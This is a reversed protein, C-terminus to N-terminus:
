GLMVDLMVAEEETPRRLKMLRSPIWKVDKEWPRCWVVYAHTGPLEMGMKIVSGVILTGPPIMFSDDVIWPPPSPFLAIVRRNLDGETDTSRYVGDRYRIMITKQKKKQRKKM